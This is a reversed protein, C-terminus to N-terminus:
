MEGRSIAQILAKGAARDFHQAIEAPNIVEDFNFIVIMDKMCRGITMVQVCRGCGGILTKCPGPIIKITCLKIDRFCLPRIGNDCPFPKLETSQVATIIDDRKFKRLQDVVSKLEQDVMELELETLAMGIVEPTHKRLSEKLKDVESFQVGSLQAAAAALGPDINALIKKIQEVQPASKKMNM